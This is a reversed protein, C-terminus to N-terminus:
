LFRQIVHYINLNCRCVFKLRYIHKVSRLVNCLVNLRIKFNIYVLSSVFSQSIPTHACITIIHKYLLKNETTNTVEHLRYGTEEWVFPRILWKIFCRRKAQCQLKAPLWKEIYWVIPLVHWHIFGQLCPYIFHWNYHCFIM